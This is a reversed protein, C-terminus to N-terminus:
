EFDMRRITIKRYDFGKEPDREIVIRVAEEPILEEIRNAWEILSVGDGNIIEDFGIEEMEEPDEIRYVDFHNLRLRGGEYVM